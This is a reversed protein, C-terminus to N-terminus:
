KKPAGTLKDMANLAHKVRFNLNQLETYNCEFNLKKLTLQNRKSSRPRVESVGGRQFDGQCLLTLSIRFVPQKLKNLNKSALSFVSRWEIDVVRPNAVMLSEDALGMNLPFKKDFKMAMAAEEDETVLNM